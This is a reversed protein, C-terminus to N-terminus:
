VGILAAVDRMSTVVHDAGAARLRDAAQLDAHGVVRMGAAKAGTVGATSDEVVVCDGPEHGSRAAAHLFLDPAPKGKAVMSASYVNGNFASALGTVELRLTIEAPTGSSAICYPRGADRLATLLEAVGDVPTLERRLVEECRREYVEVFDSPLRRGLEAEIAALCDTTRRGMYKDVAQSFTTPLGNRSVWEAFVVNSLRESDVLVGDNDFIILSPQPRM